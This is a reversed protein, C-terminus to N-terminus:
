GLELLTQSYETVRDLSGWFLLGLVNPVVLLVLLALDLRSFALAPTPGTEQDIVMVRLVKVYYFAAVAANLM